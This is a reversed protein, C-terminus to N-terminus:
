KSPIGDLLITAESVGLNRAREYWFIAAARDGRAGRLHTQELFDPDYSEGLRLAAPGSGANAAREYFLRASVLDGTRFLADGRALLLAEERSPPLLVQKSAIGSSPANPAVEPAFVHEPTPIDRKETVSSVTKSVRTTNTEEGSLSSTSAVQGVEKIVSLPM